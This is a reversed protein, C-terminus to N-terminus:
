NTGNELMLSWQNMNDELNEILHNLKPFFNVLVDFSPIVLAKIFGIQAKPVNSSDRDCFMSIPIGLSKERDGQQYFEEYLLNTWTKSIEFSKTNHSLDGLHILLNLMEQQDEWINKSETNIIKEINKGNQIDLIQSKAKVISIIKSHVAMDTALVCEIMRKRIEKFEAVSFNELFNCEPKILIKFAESVHMNELVSKDNYTISLETMNNMQFGNTFGPHKFDHIIAATYLSFLELKMLRLPSDIGAHLVWSYLTQCLDVAHLENHYLVEKKYGDRISVSFKDMKHYDLTYNDKLDLKNIIEHYISPLVKARGIKETVQFINFDISELNLNTEIIEIEEYVISDFAKSISEKDLSTEFIKNTNFRQLTEKNSRNVVEKERLRQIAELEANKMINSNKFTEKKDNFRCVNNESFKKGKTSFKPKDIISASNSYNSLIGLVYENNEKNLEELKNTNVDVNFSYLNQSQITNTVWELETIIKKEIKFSILLSKVYKLFKLVREYPTMRVEEIVKEEQKNRRSSDLIIGNQKRGNNISMRAKPIKM